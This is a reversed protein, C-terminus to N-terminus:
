GLHIQLRCRRSGDVRHLLVGQLQLVLLRLEQSVPHSHAQWRSCHPFNWRDRFQDAITQWEKPKQPSPLCKMLMNQWLPQVCRLSSSASTNHAVRFSYVLSKHSDGTALLQLTIALKLGPELVQRYWTHQRETRPGVRLLLEQFM